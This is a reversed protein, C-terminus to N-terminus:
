DGAMKQGENAADNLEQVFAVQEKSVRATRPTSSEFEEQKDKEFKALERRAQGPARVGRIAEAGAGESAAAKAPAAGGRPQYADPLMNTDFAVGGGVRGNLFNWLRQNREREQALEARAAALDAVREDYRERSVFPWRFSM